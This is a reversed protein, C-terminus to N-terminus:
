FHEDKWFIIAFQTNLLWDIGDTEVLIHVINEHNRLLRMGQLKVIIFYHMSIKFTYEKVHLIEFFPM